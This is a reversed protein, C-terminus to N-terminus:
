CKQIDSRGDKTRSVPVQFLQRRTPLRLWPAHFWFFVVQGSVRRIKMSRNAPDHRGGLLKLRGNAWFHWHFDWLHSSQFVCQKAVNNIILIIHKNPFLQGLYLGVKSGIKWKSALESCLYAPRTVSLYIYQLMQTDQLDLRRFQQGNQFYHVSQIGPQLAPIM